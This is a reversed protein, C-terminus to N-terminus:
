RRTQATRSFFSDDPAAAKLDIQEIQQPNNYIQPTQAKGVKM